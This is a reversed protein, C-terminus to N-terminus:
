KADGRNDSVDAAHLIRCKACWKDRPEPSAGNPLCGRHYMCSSWEKAAFRVAERLENLENASCTTQSSDDIRENM